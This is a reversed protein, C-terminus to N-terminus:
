RSLFVERHYALYDQHPKEVSVKMDATIGLTKPTEVADSILIKGKEDFSIYFLDFAKDLNPLLLLGNYQDLREQNNSDRWPKIHSAVLFQVSSYSTLACGNWYEILKQRFHGQGLRTNVLMSKQTSDAKEDNIIQDIDEALNNQSSDRIFDKYANLAASYMQNGKANKIKFDANEFLKAAVDVVESYSTVAILNKQSIRADQVWNTISGKIAGVYSNATRESKGMSILWHYFPISLDELNELLAEKLTSRTIDSHIYEFLEDDLYAYEVWQKLQNKSPTRGSARLQEYNEKSDPKISFHWFGDSQLHYFPQNIAEVDNGKKYKEFFRTFATELVESLTFKNEVVTQKEISDMLAFILCVKHPKPHGSSRDVNLSSLKVQYETLSM